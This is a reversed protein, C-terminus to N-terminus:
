IKVFSRDHFCTNICEANNDEITFIGEPSWRSYTVTPEVGPIGSVVQVYKLYESEGFTEKGDIRAVAKATQVEGSPRMYEVEYKWQEGDRPRPFYSDGNQACALLSGSLVAAVMTSRSWWRETKDNMHYEGHSNGGM